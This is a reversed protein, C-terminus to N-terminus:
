DEKGRRLAQEVVEWVVERPFGRRLLLAAMKQKAKMEDLALYRKRRVKLLNAALKKQSVQGFTEAVTKEVIENSIGKLKLERRLLREGLPKTAVRNQAWQASFQVDDLLDSQRLERIVQDIVSQSHGRKKLREAVEWVSRARYGIFDLAFNKAKSKEAALTVKQLQSQSLELGQRLGLEHAIQIDIGLAFRGDLYISVRKPNRKQSEIKTIKLKERKSM